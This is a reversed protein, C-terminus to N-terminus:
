KTKDFFQFFITSKVVAKYILLEIYEVTINM